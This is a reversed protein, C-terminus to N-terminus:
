IGAIGNVISLAQNEPKKSESPVIVALNSQEEGEIVIETDLLSLISTSGNRM